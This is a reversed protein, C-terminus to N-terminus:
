KRRAIVEECAGSYKGQTYTVEAVAINGDRDIVLGSSSRTGYRESEIFPSSLMRELEAAVGTNPLQISPYPQRRNLLEALQRATAQQQTAEAIKRRAYDVKPWASDLLANSLAYYGPTLIRGGTAQDRNSFYGLSDGDWLLLNYGSYHTATTALLDLTEAVPMQSALFESILLGRSKEGASPNPERYNTVAAFRGQRSVGFWTGGAQLDRGAFINPHDQWWHAALTPRPYFEDRNAALLLPRKPDQRYAFSILCM